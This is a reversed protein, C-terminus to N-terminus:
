YVSQLTKNPKQQKNNNNNNNNKLRTNHTRNVSVSEHMDITGSSPLLYFLCVFYICTYIYIYIYHLLNVLRAYSESPIGRNIEYGLKRGANQGEDPDMLIVCCLKIIMCLIVLEILM